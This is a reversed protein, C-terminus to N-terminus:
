KTIVARSQFLTAKNQLLKLQGFKDYNKCEKYYFRYLTPKYYILLDFCDKLDNSTSVPIVWFLGYCAQFSQFTDSVFYERFFGMIRMVKGSMKSIIEWSEFFNGM